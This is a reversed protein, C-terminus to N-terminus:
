YTVVRLDIIEGNSKSIVIMCEWGSHRNFWNHRTETYRAEVCYWNNEKDYYVNYRRDSMDKFFHDAIKVADKETLDIDVPEKDEYRKKYIDARWDGDKVVEYSYYFNYYCFIGATLVLLVVLVISFIRKKM